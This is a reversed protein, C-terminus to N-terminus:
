VKIVEQLKQGSITLFKLDAGHKMVESVFDKIEDSKGDLKSLQTLQNEKDALIKL